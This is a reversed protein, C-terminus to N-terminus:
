NEGAIAAQEVLEALYDISLHNDMAGKFIAGLYEITPTGLERPDRLYAVAECVGLQPSEVSVVLRRYNLPVHEYGDLLLLDAESVDYLVGWVARLPSPVINAVAAKSWNQSAGDFRLGYHDLRAPGLPKSDPCRRRMQAADLNSGYAFYRM